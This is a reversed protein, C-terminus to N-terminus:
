CQYIAQVYLGYFEGLTIKGSLTVHNEPLVVQNDRFILLFHFQNNFHSPHFFTKLFFAPPRKNPVRYYMPAYFWRNTNFEM